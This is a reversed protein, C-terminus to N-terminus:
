GPNSFFIYSIFGIFFLIYYEQLEKRLYSIARTIQKEVAKVSIGLKEAIEKNKLFDNRSLLFITRCREPLRDMSTSIKEELDKELLSKMPDEERLFVSREYETIRRALEDRVKSGANKKRIFNLCKNRVATFLYSGPSSHIQGPKDWLAIFVEQVIDQADKIDATFKNAFLVLNGHYKRFLMEFNLIDWEQIDPTLRSQENTM